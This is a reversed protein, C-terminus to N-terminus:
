GATISVDVACVTPTTIAFTSGVRLRSTVQITGHHLDLIKKAWYLGLGTGKVSASLSNDIRSFKKFLKPQDRKAIGVGQDKITIITDTDTQRISVTIVGGSQSYKGANDLINGIVMLMLKPDVNAIMKAKPKHFIVTQRRQDFLIAQGSIAAEVEVVLDCAIKDVYVKGADVKAVRLLDEIIELQRENNKYAVGLMKLQEHTLQGAYGMQLM